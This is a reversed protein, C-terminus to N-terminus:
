VFTARKLCERWADNDRKTKAGSLKGTESAGGRARRGEGALSAFVSLCFREIKEVLPPSCSFQESSVPSLVYRERSPDSQVQKRAKQRSSARTAKIDTTRTHMSMHNWLDSGKQGVSMFVTEMWKQENNQSQNM